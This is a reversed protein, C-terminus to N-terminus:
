RGAQYQWPLLNKIHVQLPTHCDRTIRGLV